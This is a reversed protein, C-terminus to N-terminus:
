GLYQIVNNFTVIKIKWLKSFTSYQRTGNCFLVAETKACFATTTPLAPNEPHLNLNSAIIVQTNYLALHIRTLLASGQHHIALITLPGCPYRASATLVEFTTPSNPMAIGDVRHNIIIEWGGCDMEPADGEPLWHLLLRVAGFSVCNCWNIHSALIRHNGPPRPAQFCLRLQQLM